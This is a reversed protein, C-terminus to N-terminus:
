CPQHVRPQSPVYWSSESVAASRMALMIRSLEGGSAVRALPRLEEGPNASLYIEIADFGRPSWNEPRHSPAVTVEFRAKPM